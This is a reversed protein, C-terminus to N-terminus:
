ARMAVETGRSTVAKRQTGPKRLWLVLPSAIYVTSYTGSILGVLMAFAFPHIEQGGWVYLIITVILVTGSTLITRGLTQNVARNVMDATVEPSKGKIERIRDFIVITDNISFGVITLLAAVVDLSIKFPDVMAWGLYDAVYYSVALAAITVLVDHVLAVVAALGFVINQFRVWVYIVIMVMSALIAYIAMVQAHDAVKGGINAAGLFVPTAALEVRVGELVRTAQDPPLTTQVTWQKFTRASSSRESDELSFLAGRLQLEVAKAELKAQLTERNIGEPFSLTTTSGGVFADNPTGAPREALPTTAPTKTSPPSVKGKAQEPSTDRAPEAKADDGAKAADSAKADDSGKAADTGKTEDQKGSNDKVAAANNKSSEDDVEDAPAKKTEGTSVEKGEDQLLALAATATFDLWGRSAGRSAQSKEKDADVKKADEKSSDSGKTADPSAANGPGNTNGTKDPSVDPTTEKTVQKADDSVDKAPKTEKKADDPPTKEAAGSTRKEKEASKAPFVEQMTASEILRPATYAMQYVQLKDEFLAKLQREVEAIEEVSTDIKYFRNRGDADPLGVSSVTVDELHEGAERSPDVIERVQGVTLKENEKLVIQVSSGGTFDIGFLGTGRAAGAGLGIAIVILSFGIAYKTPKVFDFGPADFMKMMKLQTLWRRREAVDFIVRAVYVATFLNLMLGLILTIAFGKLQDTGIAYLVVGTL